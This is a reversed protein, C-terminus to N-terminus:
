NTIEKQLYWTSLLFIINAFIRWDYNVYIFYIRQYIMIFIANFSKHIKNLRKSIDLQQNATQFEKWPNTHSIKIFHQIFTSNASNIKKKYFYKSRYPFSLLPLSFM